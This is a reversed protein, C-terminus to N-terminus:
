LTGTKKETEATEEESTKRAPKRAVIRKARETALATLLASTIWRSLMFGLVYATTFGLLARVIVVAPSVQGHLGMLVMILFVVLGLAIGVKDSDFLIGM